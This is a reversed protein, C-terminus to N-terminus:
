KKDPDQRLDFFSLLHVADDTVKYLIRTHRTLTFGRIDKEAFETTGLFPYKELLELFKFTRSTIKKVAQTGFEELLYNQISEFQEAAKQNWIIKRAM